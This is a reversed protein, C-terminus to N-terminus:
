KKILVNQHATRSETDKNYCVDYGKDLGFYFYGGASGLVPRNNKTITGNPLATRSETSKNYCVDCRKDLGFYVYGGSGSDPPNKINVLDRVFM